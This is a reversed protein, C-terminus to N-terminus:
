YWWPQSCIDKNKRNKGLGSPWFGTNKTKGRNRRFPVQSTNKQACRSFLINPYGKVLFNSLKACLARSSVALIFRVVMVAAVLVVVLVVVSAVGGDCDCGAFVLVAVVAAVVVVAVVWVWPQSFFSKKVLVM